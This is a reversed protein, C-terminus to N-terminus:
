SLTLLPLEKEMDETIDTKQGKHRILKDLIDQPVENEEVEVETTRVNYKEEKNKNYIQTTFKVMGNVIKEGLFVVVYPLNEEKKDWEDWAKKLDDVYEKIARIFFEKIQEWNRAILVGGTVVVGVAAAIAALTLTVPEVM